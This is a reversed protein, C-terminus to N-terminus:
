QRPLAHWDGKEELTLERVTADVYQTRNLSDKTKRYTIRIPYKPTKGNKQVADANIDFWMHTENNWTEDTDIIPWHPLTYGYKELVRKIEDKHVGPSKDM